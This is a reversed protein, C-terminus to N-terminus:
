FVIEDNLVHAPVDDSSKVIYDQVSNKDAYQGTKDKQIVIKCKGTKGHFDTSDLHGTEYRELLGCAGAAHRLKYALAEMLYDFVVRQAGEADYVYLKLAIMQNGKTSTKDDASAIEFDYIGAPLLDAEAIEKETKPQFQM